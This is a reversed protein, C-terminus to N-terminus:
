KSKEDQKKIINGNKIVYEIIDLTINRSNVPSIHSRLNNKLYYIDNNKIYSIANKRLIYLEALNIQEVGYDIIKHIIKEKILKKYVIPISPVEVTVKGITKKIMPIKDLVEKSFNTATLNIRIEKIGAKKIKKINKINVLVGNTYIWQYISPNKKNILTAIPIIKKDLYLFPEGGSYSIGEIKENLIKTVLRNFPM